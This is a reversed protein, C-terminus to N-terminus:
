RKGVGDGKGSKVIFGIMTNEFFECIHPHALTDITLGCGFINACKAMGRAADNKNAMTFEVVM